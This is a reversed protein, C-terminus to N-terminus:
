RRRKRSGKNDLPGIPDSHGRGGPPPPLQPALVGFLAANQQADIPKPRRRRPSQRGSGGHAGSRM